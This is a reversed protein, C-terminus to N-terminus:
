ALVFDEIVILQLLFRLQCLCHFCYPNFSQTFQGELNFSIYVPLFILSSMGTNGRVSAERRTIILSFATTQIEWYTEGSMSEGGNVVLIQTDM